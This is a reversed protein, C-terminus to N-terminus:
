SAAPKQCGLTANAWLLNSINQVGFTDETERIFQKHPWDLGAIVEDLTSVHGTFRCISIATDYEWGYGHAHVTIKRLIRNKANWMTAGVEIM